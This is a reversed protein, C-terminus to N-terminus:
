QVGMDMKAMDLNVAPLDIASHREGILDAQGQPAGLLRQHLAEGRDPVGSADVRAETIQDRVALVGAGPDEHCAPHEARRPAMAVTAPTGLLAGRRVPKPKWHYRVPNVGDTTRDPFLEPPTHVM